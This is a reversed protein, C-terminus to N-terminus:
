STPGTASPRCAQCRSSCGRRAARGSLSARAGPATETRSRPRRANRRGVAAVLVDDRQWSLPNFVILSEGSQRSRRRSRPGARRHADALRHGRDTRLSPRTRTSRRPHVLRAPHRPVPPAPDVGLGCPATWRTNQKALLVDALSSLWEADHYLVEAKRNARKLFAQSTYTGRHVELYLEGDWVPVDEGHLHEALRDFFPEAKGLQVQPFGPLNKLVDARDLMERTPGGGGDGWGFLM